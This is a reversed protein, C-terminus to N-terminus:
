ASRAPTTPGARWGRDRLLQGARRWDDPQVEYSPHRGFFYIGRLEKETMSELDTAYGLHRRKARM